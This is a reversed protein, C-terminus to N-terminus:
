EFRERAQKSDRPVRRIWCADVGGDPLHYVVLATREDLVVVDPSGAGWADRPDCYFLQDQYAWTMADNYSVQFKIGTWIAQAGLVGGDPLAALVPQYGPTYQWPPTWRRGGDSSISGSIMRPSKAGQEPDCTEIAGLLRQGSLPLIAMNTFGAGCIVTAGSWTVGGDPSRLVACWLRGDIEVRVPALVQGDDLEVIGGGPALNSMPGVEIANSLQWTAGHDTSTATCMGARHAVSMILRGDRLATLGYGNGDCIEVPDSWTEGRDTSILAATQRGTQVSVLLHGESTKCIQPNTGQPKGRYVPRVQRIVWRHDALPGADGTRIQAPMATDVAELWRAYVGFVLNDNQRTYMSLLTNDDLGIVYGNHWDWQPDDPHKDYVHGQYAWSQGQDFSVTYRVASLSVGTFMMGGDPLQLGDMEASGMLWQEPVSWTRGQDSSLARFAYITRGYHTPNLRFLAILRGDAEAPGLIITENYCNGIGAEGRAIISMDGWTLGGDTSRIIVPSFIWRQRDSESLFTCAPQVLTGDHMEWLRAGNLRLEFGGPAPQQETIQWTHGDDDSCLTQLMPACPGDYTYTRGRLPTRGVPGHDYAPGEDCVNGALHHAINTVIRGNGLTTWHSIGEVGFQETLNAEEVWNAGNDQSRMVVLGEGNQQHSGGRYVTILIDGGGTRTCAQLWTEKDDNVVWEGRGPVWQRCANM